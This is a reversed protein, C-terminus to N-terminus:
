ITKGKKKKLLNRMANKGKGIQQNKALLLLFATQNQFLEYVLKTIRQLNFYGSLVLIKWRGSKVYHAQYKEPTHNHQM